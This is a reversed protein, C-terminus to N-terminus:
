ETQSGVSLVAVLCGKTPSDASINPRAAIHIDAALQATQEDTLGTIDRWTINDTMTM